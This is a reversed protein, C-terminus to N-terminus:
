TWHLRWTCQPDGRRVCETHSTEVNRAHAMEMLAVFAGEIEPAHGDPLDPYDHLELHITRADVQVCHMEGTDHYRRWLRSARDVLFSVSILPLLARYVGNVNSGQNAHSAQWLLADDGEGLVADAARLFEVVSGYDVWSMPLLAVDGIVERTSPSLRSLVAQFHEESARERTFALYNQLTLGKTKGM